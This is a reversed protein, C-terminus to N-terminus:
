SWVLRGRLNGTPPLEAIIQEVLRWTMARMILHTKRSVLYENIADDVADIISPLALAEDLVATWVTDETWNM